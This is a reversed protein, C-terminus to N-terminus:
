YASLFISALLVFERVHNELGFRKMCDATVRALYQGDHKETLRFYTSTLVENIHSDYSVYRIFELIARHIKGDVYWVVVIGLISSVLPSTWGDMVIHVTGDRM